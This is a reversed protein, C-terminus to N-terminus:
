GGLPSEPGPIVQKANVLYIIFRIGRGPGAPGGGRERASGRPRGQGAGAADEAELGRGATRRMGRGPRGAGPRAQRALPRRPGGAPGTSSSPLPALCEPPWRAPLPRGLARAAVPGGATPRNRWPTAAPITPSREVCHEM